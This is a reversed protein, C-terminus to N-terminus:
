QKIIRGHYTRPYRRFLQQRLKEHDNSQGRVKAIEAAQYVAAASLHPHLDGYLAPIRLLLLAAKSLDSDLARNALGGGLSINQNSSKQTETEIDKAHMEIKSMALYYLAAPRAQGIITPEGSELSSQCRVHDGNKQMIRAELVLKWAAIEKAQDSDFTRSALLEILKKAPEFDEIEILMSALYIMLAPSTTKGNSVEYYQFKEKLQDSCSKLKTQDFWVPTLKSALNITSESELLNEFEVFDNKTERKLEMAELFPLVAEARRTSHLRSQMTAVCALFKTKSDPFVNGEKLNLEFMPDAIKGAGWWDGKKIRTKLRFVPLGIERVYKDFKVQDSPSVSAQLVEDWGIRRGDFLEIGTQDFKSIEAQIRTLNRLIISQGMCSQGNAIAFGTLLLAVSARIIASRNIYVPKRM